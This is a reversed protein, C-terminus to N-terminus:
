KEVLDGNEDIECNIRELLDNLVDGTEDELISCLSYAVEKEQKTSNVDFTNLLTEAIAIQQTNM